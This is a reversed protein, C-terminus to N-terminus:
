VNKEGQLLAWNEREMQQVLDISASYLDAKIQRGVNREGLNYNTVSGSHNFDPADYHCIENILRWMFRRGEPTTMIAFVDTLEQDLQRKVKRGADNVQNEDAANRVIPKPQQSM